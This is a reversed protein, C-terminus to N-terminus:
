SDASRDPRPRPTSMLSTGTVDEIFATLISQLSNHIHTATAEAAAREDRQCIAECIALHEEASKRMRAPNRRALHRLRALHAHLNALAEQLYANDTATDIAQDFRAILRTYGAYADAPQKADDLEVSAKHMEERLAEFTEQDGHRAALRAAYTELAERMQFLQAVSDMSIEAVVAGRGPSIRVLNDRALRRLADRIPTRSVHLRRSLEVEGLVTGPRLRWDLIENRLTQYVRESQRMTTTRLLEFNDFCGTYAPQM